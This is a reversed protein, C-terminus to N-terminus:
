PAGLYTVAYLDIGSTTITNETFSVDGQLPELELADVRSRLADIDAHGTFVPMEDSLQAAKIKLDEVGADDFASAEIESNSSGVTGGGRLFISFFFRLYEPEVEVKTRVGNVITWGIPIGNRPPTVTSM